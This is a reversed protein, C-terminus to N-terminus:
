CFATIGVSLGRIQDPIQDISSKRAILCGDVMKKLLAKFTQKCVFQRGTRTQERKVKKKLIIFIYVGM